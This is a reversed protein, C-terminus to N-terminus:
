WKKALLERLAAADLMQEALLKKLKANKDELAKLRKAESVDMGCFKAKWNYFTAESIGHKRCLDAAKAGAEQEKLVAIIQEETFRQKKM